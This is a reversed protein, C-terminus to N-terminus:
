DSHSKKKEPRRQTAIQTALALASGANRRSLVVYARRRGLPDGALPVLPSPLGAERCARALLLANSLGYDELVSCVPREDIDQGPAQPEINLGIWPSLLRGALRAWWPAAHRTAPRRPRPGGGDPVTTGLDSVPADGEAAGPAGAASSEFLSPQNPMGPMIGLPAGPGAGPRGGGTVARGRAGVAAGRGTGPRGGTPARRWRRGGRARPAPLRVPVLSRRDAGHGAGHRHRQRGAPLAPPRQRSGGAPGAPQGPRQRLRRRPGTWLR